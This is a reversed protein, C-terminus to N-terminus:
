YDPFPLFPKRQNIGSLRTGAVPEMQCVAKPHRNGRHLHTGVDLVHLYNVVRHIIAAHLRATHIDAIEGDGVQQGGRHVLGQDLYKRWSQRVSNLLRPRPPQLREMDGVPQMHYHQIVIFKHGAHHLTHQNVHVPLIRYWNPICLMPRIVPIVATANEIAVVYRHGVVIHHKDAVLM